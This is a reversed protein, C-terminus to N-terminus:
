KRYDNWDGSEIVGRTPSHTIRYQYVYVEVGLGTLTTERTYLSTEPDGTYGEYRDFYGLIKLNLIQYVEGKVISETNDLDILGPFSGLNLLIGKVTDKGVYEVTRSINSLRNVFSNSGLNTMGMLTGYVFIHNTM